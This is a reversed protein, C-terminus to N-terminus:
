RQAVPDLLASLWAGRTLRRAVALDRPTDLDFALGPTSIVRAHPLRALHTTFSGPGYSFAFRGSAKILNTGGDHAPAIVPGDIALVGALDEQSLLPVDAHLVVWPGSAAAVVADAAGNLGGPDEPLSSFGNSAAWRHVGPDGTVFRVDAGTQAAIRATRLAIAQGLRRRLTPGAVSELRRKAVTFPKVPIGVLTTM